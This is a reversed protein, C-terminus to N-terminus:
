PKNKRNEYCESNEFGCYQGRPWGVTPIDKKACRGPFGYIAPPNVSKDFKERVFHKCTNCSKDFSDTGDVGFALDFVRTLSTNLAHCLRASEALDGQPGTASELIDFDSM